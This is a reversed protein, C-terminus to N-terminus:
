NGGGLNIITETLTEVRAEAIKNFKGNTGDYDDAIFIGKEQETINANFTQVSTEIGSIVSAKVDSFKLERTFDSNEYAMKMYVTYTTTSM